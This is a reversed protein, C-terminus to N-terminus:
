SLEGSSVHTGATSGGARFTQGAEPAVTSSRAARKERILIAVALYYISVIPFSTAINGTQMPILITLLIVLGGKARAAPILQLISILSGWLFGYDIMYALIDNHPDVYMFSYVYNGTSTSGGGFGNLQDLFDQSRHEMWIATWYSMRWALSSGHGGFEHSQAGERIADFDVNQFKIILSTIIPTIQWMVLLALAFGVFMQLRRRVSLFSAAYVLLVIACTGFGTSSESLGLALFLGILMIRYDGRLASIKDKQIILLAILFTSVYGAHNPHVLLSTYRFNGSADAQGFMGLGIYLPIPVILVYCLLFVVRYLNKQSTLGILGVIAMFTFNRIVEEIRVPFPTRNPFLAHVFTILFVASICYFIFNHPLKGHTLALFFVVAALLGGAFNNFCGAVIALFILTGLASPLQLPM